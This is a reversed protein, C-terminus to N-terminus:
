FTKMSVSLIMSPRELGVVVAVAVAVGLALTSIPYLNIRSEESRIGSM